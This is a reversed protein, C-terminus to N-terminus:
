AKVSVAYASVLDLCPVGYFTKLIAKHEKPDQGNPLTAPSQWFDLKHFEVWEQGSATQQWKWEVWKGEESDSRLEQGHQFRWLRRLHAM